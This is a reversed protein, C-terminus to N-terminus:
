LKTEYIKRLVKMYMEINISLYLKLEMKQEIYKTNRLLTNTFLYFIDFFDFYFIISGQIIKLM